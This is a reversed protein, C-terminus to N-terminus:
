LVRNVGSFVTINDHNRNIRGVYLFGPPRRIPGSIGSGSHHNGSESKHIGSQLSVPEVSITGPNWVVSESNWLRVNAPNGSQKVDPSM